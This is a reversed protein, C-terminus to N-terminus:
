SKDMRPYLQVALPLQLHHPDAVLPARNQHESLVSRWSESPDGHDWSDYGSDVATGQEGAGGELGLCVGVLAGGQDGGNFYCAVWNLFLCLVEVSLKGSFVCM